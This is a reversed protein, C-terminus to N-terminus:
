ATAVLRHPSLTQSEPIIGTIIQLPVLIWDRRRMTRPPQNRGTLSSWIICRAKSSPAKSVVLEDFKRLRVAVVPQGVRRSEEELTGWYKHNIAKAM